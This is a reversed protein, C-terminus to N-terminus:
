IKQMIVSVHDKGLPSWPIVAGAPKGLSDALQRYLAPSVRWLGLALFKNLKDLLSRNRWSKHRVKEISLIRFGHRNAHFELSEPQWFVHHELLNTYWWRNTGHKDPWYSNINGTEVVVIGNEKLLAHLNRYAAAPNYIHEFVDFATIVDYAQRSWDLQENDLLGQIFEGQLHKELGPHQVIDLGSRRESIDRFAKLLAGNSPGIDLLDFRNKTVTDEIQKKERRFDYDDDWVEGAQNEFTAALFAPTPLLTKYVLHCTNCEAMSIGGAPLPIVTKGFHYATSALTGRRTRSSDGCAPCSEIGFWKDAPSSDSTMRKGKHGYM